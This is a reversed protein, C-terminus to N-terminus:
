GSGSQVGKTKHIPLWNKSSRHGTKMKLAHAVRRYPGSRTNHPITCQTRTHEHIIPNHTPYGQVM